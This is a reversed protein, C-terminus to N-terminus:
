QGEKYIETWLLLAKGLLFSLAMIACQLRKQFKVQPSRPISTHERVKHISTAVFAGVRCIHLLIDWPLNVCLFTHFISEEFYHWRHLWWCPCTHRASGDFSMAPLNREYKHTLQLIIGRKILFLFFVVGMEYTKQLQCRTEHRFQLSHRHM